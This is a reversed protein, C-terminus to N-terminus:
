APKAVSEQFKVFARETFGYTTEAINKWKEQATLIRSITLFKDVDALAEPSTQEIINKLRSTVNAWVGAIQDLGECVKTLQLEVPNVGSQLGNVDLVLQAKKAAEGRLTALQGEIENARKRAQEALAGLVGGSVAALPWAVGFSIIMLGVSSGTAAAVYKTYDDRAGTLEIQAATISDMVDKHKAVAEKCVDSSASFYKDIPTKVGTMEASYALLATRLSTARAEMAISETILGGDGGLIGKLAEYREKRDSIQNLMTKLVGFSLHFNEATNAIRQSVWVIRGYLSTPEAGKGLKEIETVLTTPNGFKKCLTSLSNLASVCNVVTDKSAFTGYKDEFTGAVVPLTLAQATVMQLQIFEQSFLAFKFPPVPEEALLRATHEPTGLLRGTSFSIVDALRPRTPVIIGDPPEFSPIASLM